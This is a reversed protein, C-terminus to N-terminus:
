RDGVYRQLRGTRLLERSSQEGDTSRDSKPLDDAEGEILVYLESGGWRCMGAYLTSSVGDTTHIWKSQIDWVNLIM